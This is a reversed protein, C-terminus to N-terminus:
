AALWPGHWGGVHAVLKEAAEPGWSGPAYAHADGPSDLLPQLIRWTEEVNDQRTFHSRDGAIAALLLVEYPTPGEGGEQAFEMDLEVPQPGGRDARHADLVARIGTSPDLKVVIQSPQPRRRPASLFHINPPHRFVLRLETQTAYLRKGTRLYFPVGSWRWNDIRLEIAAFTPTPSDAAVGRESRCRCGQLTSFEEPPDTTINALHFGYRRSRCPRNDITTHKRNWLSQPIFYNMRKTVEQDM